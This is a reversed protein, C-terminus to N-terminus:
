KAKRRTIKLENKIDIAEKVNAKVAKNLFSIALKQTQSDIEYFRDLNGGIYDGTISYFVDLHAQSYNYKNSMILSWYLFDGSTTESYYKRIEKYAITDGAFAKRTIEFYNEEPSYTPSM